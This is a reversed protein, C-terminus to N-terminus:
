RPFLRPRIFVSVADAGSLVAMAVFAVVYTEHDRGAITGWASCPSRRSCRGGGVKHALPRRALVLTVVAAGIGVAARLRGLGM